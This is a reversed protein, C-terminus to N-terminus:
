IQLVTDSCNTIRQLAEIETCCTEKARLETDVSCADLKPDNEEFNIALPEYSDEHVAFGLKQRAKM